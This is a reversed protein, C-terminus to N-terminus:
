VRYAGVTERISRAKDNLQQAVTASNAASASNEETMQAIREVQQAIHDSAQGQELVADSIESVMVQVEQTGSRIQEIATGAAKAGEIGEEVLAVMSAMSNHANSASEQVGSLLGSISVTSTTTKEALKRVEDAVVAFGRGQEGARAAEIAANLALLNIQDAVEKIVTVVSSISESQSKLDSIKEAALKAALAIDNIKSVSSAIVQSGNEALGGATAALSKTDRARDGIHNISVTLEEISAAMSSSAESQVNSGRSIEDATHAMDESSRSVQDVEAKIQKLSANLRDLLAGYANLALGIEDSSNSNIRKTFDLTASVELMSQKMEHIPRVISRGVLYGTVGVLVIMLLATAGVMSLTFRYSKDGAAALEGAHRANAAEIKELIDTAGSRAKTAEKAFVDIAAQKEGKASLEMVRKALDFYVEMAPYLQKLNGRDVDSTVLNKEYASVNNVVDDRLALIRKETEQVKDAPTVIHRYVLAHMLTFQFQTKSINKMSPVSDSNVEHLYGNLQNIGYISIGGFVLLALMPLLVLLAIKKLISM